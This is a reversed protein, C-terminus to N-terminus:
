FKMISMCEEKEKAYMLRYAKVVDEDSLEEDSSEGDNHDGTKYGLRATFAIVINTKEEDSEEESEEDSLTAIWGKKQKQLFNTCEEQIHWFEECGHCQIEKEKNLKDEQKKGQLSNFSRSKESVKDKVNTMVNNRYRRNLRRMRKGFTKALLSIFKFMNDDIDKIDQEKDDEVDAKFAVGKSKKETKKKHTTGKRNLTRLIKRGGKQSKHPRPM